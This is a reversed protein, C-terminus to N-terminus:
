AFDKPIVEFSQNRSIYNMYRALSDPELYEIIIGSGARLPNLSSQRRAWIIKGCGKIPQGDDTAIIFRLNQHPRLGELPTVTFFGGRGLQIEQGHGSKLMSTGNINLVRLSEYSMPKESLREQFAKALRYVERSFDDINFPKQIYSDGGKSLLDEPPIDSYGTVFLISPTHKKTERLNVMLEPGTGNPMRVDSVICDYDNKQALLLADNGCNAVDIDFNQGELFSKMIGIIFPEDDVLLIRKRTNQNDTMQHDGM